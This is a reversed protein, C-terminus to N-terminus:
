PRLCLPNECRIDPDHGPKRLPGRVHSLGHVHVARREVPPVRRNLGPTNRPSIRRSVVMLFLDSTGVAVIDDLETSAGITDRRTPAEGLNRWVTENARRLAPAPHYSSSARLRTGRWASATTQRSLSRRIILGSIAGHAMQIAPM